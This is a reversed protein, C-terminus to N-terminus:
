RAAALPCSAKSFELFLKFLNPSPVSPAALLGDVWGSPPASCSSPGVEAEDLIHEQEQKRGGKWASVLGTLLGEQQHLPHTLPYKRGVDGAVIM